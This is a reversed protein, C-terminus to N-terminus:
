VQPEQPEQPEKRIKIVKSVTPRFAIILLILLIPLAWFLIGDKGSLILSSIVQTIFLFSLALDKSKHWEEKLVLSEQRNIKLCPFLLFMLYNLVIIIPWLGSVLWGPMFSDANGGADFHIALGSAFSPYFYCAALLSLAILFLSFRETKFNPEIPNKM